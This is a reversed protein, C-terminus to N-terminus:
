VTVLQKVASATISRAYLSALDGLQARWRPGASGLLGESLLGAALPAQM